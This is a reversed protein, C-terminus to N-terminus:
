VRERGDKAQRFHHYLKPQPLHPVHNYRACFNEIGQMREKGKMTALAVEWIKRDQEAEPTLDLPTVQEQLPIFGIM